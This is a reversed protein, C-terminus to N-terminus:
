GAPRFKYIGFTDNGEIRTMTGRLGRDYSPPRQAGGSGGSKRTKSSGGGTNASMTIVRQRKVRRHSHKRACTKILGCIEPEEPVVFQDVGPPSGRCDASQIVENTIQGCDIHITKVAYISLGFGVLLTVILRWSAM